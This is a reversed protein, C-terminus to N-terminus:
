AATPEEQVIDGPTEEGKAGAEDAASSTDSGETESGASAEGDTKSVAEDNDNESAVGPMDGNGQEECLPAIAEVRSLM